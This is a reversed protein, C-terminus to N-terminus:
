TISQYKTVKESILKCFDSINGTTLDIKQLVTVREGYVLLLMDAAEIACEFGSFAVFETNGNDIPITMGDKSSSVVISQEASIGDKGALLVKASKDFPNKKHKRSRWLGGIGVDVAVAGVFLPVVLEQPKVLGPVFLFIGVALCVVSMLRTRLRSRTRGQEMSNFKDTHKWMGPYQERSIIETRKELAQSVQPLLKETDYPSIQIARNETRGKGIHLSMIRTTAM